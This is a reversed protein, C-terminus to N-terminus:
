DDDSDDANARGGGLMGALLSSPDASGMEEQAKKLEEPDMGESLKPLVYLLVIPVVITLFSPSMILSLLSFKERQEFYDLQKVPEVVLPYSAHIKPAGPYKYELARTFGDVGIDLKYKSFLFQTSPIDIVYRGPKLDRIVFSGDARVFTTHEGGNVQVKFPHVKEVVSGQPYVTGSISYTQVCTAVLGLLLVLLLLAM